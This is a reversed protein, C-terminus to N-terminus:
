EEYMKDILEKYNKAVVPRKLKLTNTLEGREMSFPEPLLTFRKVQEYHAFQQQLTDIRARFLGIVKPHQLLEEMNKYEIGKEKAYDKVFGYVPVILASVFKRQDAIIAIQDIYRDIALKTELAQPSVYKGNSTKFLDKIRETLYLQDGKLYGADGTHFWGDKDIAAATAEAKKYYGKTITKGRLLIENEEGIKVEVDPMITGVSGIEYGENLFCSVTATSETLGYGVLMNIGVSHVFECIEDPVAAGATPFFNGNEIGITKKLLAYVTKEYFKYKLQNMLPPTKGKRLYDINHIKGVKIADLMMAKKLGTEQAIKEQVGAYVKEWFRPVSCMLTPRIEKITTQIDVPRLNICIQVGKHICLYTWAKEFVHTLPLFNMSVDQDTMDVLRIDHIRFAEMYNSHHLMVGKPEGTTGSTYLINALDDDSARSTREEVIDNNPLGKGTELFEDFYISTMDRPDRVVARDFIILQQLSQCFGFVSFAADYQFQEGVFIYRIQADNIIYQAQAPSSTAYLPITVARNAFAGFDVYLCEPKNQSFIGINEEEQVGLEILANAVQRVTQSFQNWTIPIWQSTEYDRYKLAVKDGYKEARRHVLVSLHHYTMNNM